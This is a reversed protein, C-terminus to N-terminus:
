LIRTGRLFPHCRRGAHGPQFRHSGDGLKNTVADYGLVRNVSLFNSNPVDSVATVPLIRVAFTM